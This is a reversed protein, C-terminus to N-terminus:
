LQSLTGCFQGFGNSAGTECIRALLLIFSEAPLLEFSYWWWWCWNGWFDVVIGQVSFTWVVNLSPSQVCQNYFNHDYKAINTSMYQFFYVSKIGDV